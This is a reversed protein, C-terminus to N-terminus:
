LSITAQNNGLVSTLGGVYLILSDSAPDSKEVLRMLSARDSAYNRVIGWRPTSSEWSWDYAVLEIWEGAFVEKLKSWSLKM